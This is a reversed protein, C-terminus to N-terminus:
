NEWFLQFIEGLENVPIDHLLGDPLFLNIVVNHFNNALSFISAFSAIFMHNSFQLIIVVNVYIHM